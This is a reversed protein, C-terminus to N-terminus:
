ARYSIMAAKQTQGNNLSEVKGPDVSREGGGVLIGLANLRSQALQPKGLKFQNNRPQARQLPLGLHRIHRAFTQADTENETERETSVAVDDIFNSVCQDGSDGLLPGPM